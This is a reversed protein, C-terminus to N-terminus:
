RKRKIYQQLEQWIKKIDSPKGELPAMEKVNTHIILTARKSFIGKEKYDMTQVDALREAVVKDSKFILGTRKYLLLRENTIYFGYREDGYTIEWPSQYKINENPFLFDELPMM